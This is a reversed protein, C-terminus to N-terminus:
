AFPIEILFHRSTDKHRDAQKERDRELQIDTVRQRESKLFENRERERQM